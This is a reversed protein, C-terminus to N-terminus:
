AMGEAHQALHAHTTNCSVVFGRGRSWNTAVSVVLGSASGGGGLHRVLPGKDDVEGLSLDHEYLWAHRRWSSNVSTGRGATNSSGPSCLTSTTVINLNAGDRLM